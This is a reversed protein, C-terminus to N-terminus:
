YLLYKNRLKNFTDLNKQWSAFIFDPDVKNQIMERLEKGGALRDFSDNNFKVKDGYLKNVVYLFKVGYKVSEFKEPDTINIKIGNCNQDIYKPSTAMGDIDKPTFSVPEFEAGDVNLLKLKEIIKQSDFFPAGIQIFPEETGRGESINIGEVLCTGPYVLATKLTNINPSPALWQSYFKNPIERHWNKCKIVNLSISESYPVLKEGVFFSALEGTTMGYAIPIQAIGVFSKYNPDLVQGDVYKGGIPDPRDLIMVPIKNEGGAELTYFMTSIYTYFRAGVDQIDFIILDIDNLNKSSPKREKGYLSVIPINKYQNKQYDIKEGAEVVGRFGHEPTFIVKVNVGKKSILADVLHTGNSLVATHNCVVAINKGSILQLNESFLLDIGNIVQANISFPLIVFLALRLLKSYTKFNM